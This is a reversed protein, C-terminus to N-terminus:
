LRSVVSSLRRISKRSNGTIQPGDDTTLWGWAVIGFVFSFYTWLFIFVIHVATEFTKGKWLESSYGVFQILLRMVWFITLGICVRRGLVTEILAASSTICLLGMLLVVLAIFLTHVYMMQKNILSVTSFEEEWNFRKPFILHIVALIILLYGTIILHIVM